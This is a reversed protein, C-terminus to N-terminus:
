KLVGQIEITTTVSLGNRESMQDNPTTIPDPFHELIVEFEM